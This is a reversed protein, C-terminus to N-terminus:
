SGPRAIRETKAIVTTESDRAGSKGAFLYKRKVLAVTIMGM